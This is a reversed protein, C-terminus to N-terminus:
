GHMVFVKTAGKLVYILAKGSNRQFSNIKIATLEKFIIKRFLKKFM